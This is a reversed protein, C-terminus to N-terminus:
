RPTPIPRLSIYNKKHSSPPDLAAAAQEMRELIDQAREASEHSAQQAYANLVADCTISSVSTMNNQQEMWDFLVREAEQSQGSRAYADIVSTYSVINPPVRQRNMEELVQEAQPGTSQQHQDQRQQNPSKAIANIWLNYAKVTPKYEEHNYVTHLHMMRQIMEKAKKPASPDKKQILTDVDKMM